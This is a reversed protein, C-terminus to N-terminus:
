MGEINLAKKVRQWIEIELKFLEDDLELPDIKSGTMKTSIRLDMIPDSISEYAAAKKTERVRVQVM